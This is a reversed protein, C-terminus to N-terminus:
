RRGGEGGSSEGRRRRVRPYVGAWQRARGSRSSTTWIGGKGEKGRPWIKLSKQNDMGNQRGGRSNGLDVRSMMLGWRWREVMRGRATEGQAERSGGNEERVVCITQLDRTGQTSERQWM